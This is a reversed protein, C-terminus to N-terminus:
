PQESNHRRGIRILADDLEDPTGCPKATQHEIRAILSLGADIAEPAERLQTMDLAPELADLAASASALSDPAGANTASLRTRCADLRARVHTLDDLLRSRRQILPLRPALPDSSLVLRALRLESAVDHDAAPASRLYRVATEYDGLSFAARGAGALAASNDPDLALVRRFHELARPADGAEMFLQGATTQWRPDEPLNGTLVLTESLARAQDGHALLYRIMEIRLQRRADFADPNWRGYLANQYYRVADTVRSERAELRALQINVEPDEPESERLRLLVQRTEDVHNAASLAAALTLEYERNDRDIATARRLANIAQDTHGEALAQHGATFWAAADQLRLERASVAAAHTLVFGAVAIGSLILLLVIERHVLRFRGGEDCSPCRGDILPTRCTPCTAAAPM